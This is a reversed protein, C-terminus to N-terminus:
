GENTENYTISKLIDQKSPCVYACLGCRICYDAHHKKLMKVNGKKGYHNLLCPSLGIPCVQTCRNCRVCEQEKDNPIDYLVAVSHTSATVPCSTDKLESGHMIGNTLILNPPVYFGGTEDIIHSIPTGIAATCCFSNKVADGALTINKETVPIGTEFLRGINYITEAGLVVMGETYSISDHPIERGTVSKILMRENGQPYRPKVKVIDIMDNYRILKKINSIGESNDSNVAIYGKKVDLIRMALKLGLLATQTDTIIRAYSGTDYPECSVANVIIAGMAHSLGLKIHAPVGDFDYVAGERLLWLLERTSLFEHGKVPLIEESKENLGDNEIEIFGNEVSKVYGSVSSYVPLYKEDDIDALKQYMLVREGPNVSINMCLEVPYRMIHGPSIKILETSIKKFGKNIRLGGCFTVAM